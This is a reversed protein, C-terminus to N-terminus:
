NEANRGTATSLMAQRMAVLVPEAPETKRLYAACPTRLAQERVGPEDHTTLFLVPTSSSTATLQHNLEIGSMGGFQIDWGLCDFRPQKPDALFDEASLYCIPQMGSARPLRSLSRCLSEDDDIVALYINTPKSM